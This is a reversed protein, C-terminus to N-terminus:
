ESPMSDHAAADSRKQAVFKISALEDLFQSDHKDMMKKWATRTKEKDKEIIKKEKSREILTEQEADRVEKARRVVQQQEKVKEEMRKVHEQHMKITSLPLEKSSLLTHVHNLHATQQEKLQQEKFQEEHHKEEARRFVDQQQQLRITRVTLVSDLAYTFRKSKKPKSM